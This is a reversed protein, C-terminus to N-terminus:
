TCPNSFRIIYTEGKVRYRRYALYGNNPDEPFDPIESEQGALAKAAVEFRIGTPSVALVSTPYGKKGQKWVWWGNGDLDNKTFEISLYLTRGDASIGIPWTQTPVEWKRIVRKMTEDVLEMEELLFGAPRKLLYKEGDLVALINQSTVNIVSLHAFNEDCLGVLDVWIKFSRRAGGELDFPILYLKSEDTNQESDVLQFKNSQILDRIEFEYRYGSKQLVSNAYATIKEASFGPHESIFRQVEDELMPPFQAQRCLDRWSERMAMGSFAGSQAVVLGAILLIAWVVLSQFHARM